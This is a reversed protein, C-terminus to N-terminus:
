PLAVAQRLDAGERALIRELQEKILAQRDADYSKWTQFATCMRATTQPNLADLKILWNSNMKNEAMDKFINSVSNCEQGGHGNQGIM